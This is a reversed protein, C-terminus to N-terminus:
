LEQPFHTGFANVYQMKEIVFSSWSASLSGKCSLLYHHLQGSIFCNLCNTSKIVINLSLIKIGVNM